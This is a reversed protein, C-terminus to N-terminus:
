RGGFPLKFFHPSQKSSLTVYIIWWLLKSGDVKKM